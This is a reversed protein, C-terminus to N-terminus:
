NSLKDYIIKVKQKLDDLNGNNSNIIYDFNYNDLATESPHTSYNEVGLRNVRIIVGGRQKIIDAENPFRVDTIIWHPYLEFSRNKELQEVSQGLGMYPDVGGIYKPKYDAFLTNVWINQHIILRGVQTGLVQLLERPTWQKSIWRIPTFNDIESLKIEQLPMIWEKGLEKEKFDADELQERTCNLIICVIDKLKDAFKKIQWNHKTISSIAPYAIDDLQLIMKGVTDKGAQMKGSIGILNVM